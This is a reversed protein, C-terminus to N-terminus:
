PSLKFDLSKKKEGSTAVGRTTKDKNSVVIPMTVGGPVKNRFIVSSQPLPTYTRFVTTLDPSDFAKSISTTCSNGMHMINHVTCVCMPIHTSNDASCATQYDCSFM